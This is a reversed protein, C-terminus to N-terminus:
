KKIMPLRATQVLVTDNSNLLSRLESVPANLHPWTTSAQSCNYNVAVGNVYETYWTSVAYNFIPLFYSSGQLQIPYTEKFTDCNNSPCATRATFMPVKEMLEGCASTPAAPFATNTAPTCLIFDDKAGSQDMLIGNVEVKGNKMFKLTGTLGHNEVYQQNLFFHSKTQANFHADMFAQITAADTIVSNQTYLAVKDVILTSGAQLSEIVDNTPVQENVVSEDKSCAVFATIGFVMLFLSSLLNKSNM